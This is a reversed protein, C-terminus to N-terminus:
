FVNITQNKRYPLHSSKSLHFHTTISTPTIRSVDALWESFQQKIIKQLGPGSLIRIKCYRWRGARGSKGCSSNHLQSMPINRSRNESFCRKVNKPAPHPVLEALGKPAMLTNIYQFIIRSMKGNAAQRIGEQTYGQSM